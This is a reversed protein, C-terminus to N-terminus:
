LLRIFKRGVLNQRKSHIGHFLHDLRAQLQEVVFLMEGFAYSESASLANV